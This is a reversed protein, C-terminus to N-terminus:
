YANLNFELESRENQLSIPQKCKMKNELVLRVKRAGINIYMFQPSTVATAQRQVVNHNPDTILVAQSTVAQELVSTDKDTKAGIWHQPQLCQATWGAM